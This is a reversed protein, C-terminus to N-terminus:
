QMLLSVISFRRLITQTPVQVGSTGTFVHQRAPHPVSNWTFGMGGHTQAMEEDDEGDAGHGGGGADGGGEVDVSGEVLETDEGEVVEDDESDSYRVTRGLRKNTVEDDDEDESTDIVLQLVEAL